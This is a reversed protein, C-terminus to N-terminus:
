EKAEYKSYRKELNRSLLTLLFTFTLYIGAAIVYATTDVDRNVAGRAAKLLEGVSLVSVLATDKILTIAENSVAPLVRKITQPLIIGFMTQGKGLGLSQAAEYQGRDISEIGGRYIEALYASYNLVFTIAATTFGDLRIGTAIPLYFYFFFLQLMLPTGRFIWIYTKSVWKFPPFKSNSGLAFPLGLPLAFILTFVFLKVTILAGQLLSPMLVGVYNLTEAMQSIYDNV